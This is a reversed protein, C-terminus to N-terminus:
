PSKYVTGEKMVFVVNRMASINNLPNGKVAVVDALMKPEITGLRDEIKLLRAAELTASQIAKMPPMGGAVMLEFERANEGHPSVGSDTGFAIKVGAAHAKAFTARIEPGIAAAKPRVIEPFYGQEKAKEAVWEGAVNTPVWYTGKEKMLAITEDTMYTGHEISDVGALVARKIGETGHAHVAVTMGYDKAAAVVARLEEDTFQPNQGSAALSLVGGTATLKILDAGDKYRQRVAKRADDPGNIVGEVPGADRRYDGRLGNTPDAHGGTTALSKGSTYIRPGPMWGQNIAKRLAVSNVGNDGLDRVTTFGAMITARAYVTSRLAYDAQDMFFKESYSDKSHQSMLHTHMDMLGPMVAYDTLRILKDGDKPQIYGKDVSAIRGEHITISMEARPEDNRGDILLGAHIITAAHSPVVLAWCCIASILASLRM